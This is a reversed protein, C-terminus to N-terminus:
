KYLLSEYLDIDIIFLTGVVIADVHVSHTLFFCSVSYNSMVEGFTLRNRIKKSDSKPTFKCCFKKSYEVM